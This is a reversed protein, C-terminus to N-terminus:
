NVEGYGYGELGGYSGIFPMYHFQHKSTGFYCSCFLYKVLLIGQLGMNLHIQWTPWEM